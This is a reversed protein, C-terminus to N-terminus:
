GWMHAFHAIHAHAVDDHVVHHDFGANAGAHGDTRASMSTAPPPPVATSTGTTAATTATTAALVPAPPAGATSLVDAVTAGDPNYAGGTVPTNNGGVDAANAHMQEAAATVLAANGTKLGKIM